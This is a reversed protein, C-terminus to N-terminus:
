DVNVKKNIQIPNVFNSSMEYPLLWVKDGDKNTFYLNSISMQNPNGDAWFAYFDSHANVPRRAYAHNYISNRTIRKKQRWVKGDETFWVSMEGGTGFGQPGGSTPAIVRWGDDEVYLSGMDYNHSAVTIKRFDWENGTWHAVEWIRVGGKPGPQFSNSTIYLIIPHGDKDFNIDKMYVLRGENKYDRVLAPNEFSNLPTDVKEGRITQWTKGFDISQLFYLNTRGDVYSNKPHSNFATVLRGDQSNTVQYHGGEVLKQDESWKLGNASTAWYLERGKTYKTFCWFFGKGEVWWPQPYAFEREQVLEFGDIDYPKKSKYIIGDRRRGRGSLFIWLFGNKDISISPNDHPDDVGQKDHGVTPQPVNNKEHDYYSVMALLHRANKNTTGGYVFFTKNVQPSYIALPVHKATYTGLGGSYKDGYDSFQGLTFWIGRYGPIKRVPGANAFLNICLFLLSIVIKSQL